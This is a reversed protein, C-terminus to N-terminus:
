LLGAQGAGQWLCIRYWVIKTLPALFKDSLSSSGLYGILIRRPLQVRSTALKTDGTVQKKLDSSIDDTSVVQLLMGARELVCM